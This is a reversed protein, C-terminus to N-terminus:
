SVDTSLTTNVLDCAIRAHARSPKVHFMAVLHYIHLDFPILHYDHEPPPPGAYAPMSLAYNGLHGSGHAGTWM